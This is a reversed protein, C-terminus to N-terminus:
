RVVSLQVLQFTPQERGTVATRPATRATIRQYFDGLGEDRQREAAWRALLPRVAPLLDEM